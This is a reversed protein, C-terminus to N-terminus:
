LQTKCIGIFEEAKLAAGGVLGGDIDAQGFLEAANAAKVSGGYLVPLDAAIKSDKEELYRRLVAHVEQAQEPTATQGTGIAWVPEYALVANAFADIGAQEVVTELQGLVVQETIGQQRQELTEGVCLVPKMGLESVACFKAAVDEDSEGFLQRRESHGVIVFQVGYELLMAAAVEGTFAGEKEPFADQAGLRVASDALLEAVFGLHLHTPCVAVELLEPFGESSAAVIRDVLREISDLSGHMKWNGIVLRSRM